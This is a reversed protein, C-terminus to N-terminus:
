IRRIKEYEPLAWNVMWECELIQKASSRNEPRFKLMSKLMKFIADREPPEIRLMGKRQRPEQMDQEFRDEWSRYPVRNIPKGDETFRSHRGEWKHWWEPPLMGLADVQECTISDETAFMDDFLSNQGIINYLSCGLSWIDSPFSMPKHPEFRVEPPRSVLPTHSEFRQQKTPSFAEGFDGLLIKAELLKLKDSAEGLWIPLLARSPINSPLPQGDFRRIAEFEPEGYKKYLEEVSLQSLDFSLQLLVNGAHLDGHVFGQSHVYEVALVLQAALARAVELQFLRNYSADKAESLSMRAPTSVYCPHTGNSGQIEFRDLVSPILRKGLSTSSSQQSNSLESLVSFELPNSDATCVKIAVYKGDKQDRVLWITSYTGHGLKQVVQYRNHIHDGIAMSHYGGVRYSELNEVGEIPEYVHHSSHDGKPSHSMLAAM